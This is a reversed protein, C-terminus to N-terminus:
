INQKKFPNVWIIEKNRSVRVRHYTFKSLSRIITDLHSPSPRATRPPRIMLTQHDNDGREQRSLNALACKFDWEGFPFPRLQSTPQLLGQSPKLLRREKWSIATGPPVRKNSKARLAVFVSFFPNTGLFNDGLTKQAEVSRASRLRLHATVPLLKRWWATVKSTKITIELNTDKQRLIHTKARRETPM